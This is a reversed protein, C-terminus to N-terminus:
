QGDANEKKVAPQASRVPSKVESLNPDQVAHSLEVTDGPELALTRRTEPNTLTPWVRAFPTNNVYLPM